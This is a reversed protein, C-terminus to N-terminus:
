CPDRWRERAEAVGPVDSALADRYDFLELMARHVGMPDCRDRVIMAMAGSLVYRQREAEEMERVHGWCAGDSMRYGKSLGDRDPWPVVVVDGSGPTWCWMHTTANPSPNIADSTM